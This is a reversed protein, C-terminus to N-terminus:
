GLAAKMIKSGVVVILGIAACLGLSFEIFTVFILALILFLAQGPFDKNFQPKHCVTIVCIFWLICVVVDRIVFGKCDNRGFSTYIAQSVWLFGCDGNNQSGLVPSTASLLALLISNSSGRTSHM